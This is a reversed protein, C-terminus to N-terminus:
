QYVCVCWVCVMDELADNMMDETMGMRDMQRAFNQMTGAVATPNMKKNATAMVQHLVRLTNTVVHLLKIRDWCHM